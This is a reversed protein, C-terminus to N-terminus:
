DRKVPDVETSNLSPPLCGQLSVRNGVLISLTEMKEKNWLCKRPMKRSWKCVTELDFVINGAKSQSLNRTWASVKTFLLLWIGGFCKFTPMITHSHTEAAKHKPCVQQSFDIITGKFFSFYFICIISFMWCLSTLLLNLHSLADIETYCGWHRGIVTVTVITVARTM